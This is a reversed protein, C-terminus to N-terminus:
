RSKIQDHKEKRTGHHEKISKLVQIALAVTGDGTKHLVTSGDDLLYKTFGSPQEGQNVATRAYIPQGNICISVSVNEAVVLMGAQSLRAVISKAAHDVNTVGAEKLAAVIVRWAAEESAIDRHVLYDYYEEVTAM